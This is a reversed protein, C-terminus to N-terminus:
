KQMNPITFEMSQFGCLYSGATILEDVANRKKKPINNTVKPCYILIKCFPLFTSLM